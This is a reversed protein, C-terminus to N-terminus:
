WAVLVEFGGMAFRRPDIHMPEDEVQKVRHMEVIGMGAFRKMWTYITEESIGMKPCLAAVSVGAEVKRM